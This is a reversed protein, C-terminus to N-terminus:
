YDTTFNTTNGLQDKVSNVYNGNYNIELSDDGNEWRVAEFYVSGTTASNVGVVVKM